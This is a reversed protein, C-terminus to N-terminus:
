ARQPTQAILWELLPDTDLAPALAGLRECLAYLDDFEYARLNVTGLLQQSRGWLQLTYHTITSGRVVRIEKLISLAGLDALAVAQASDHNSSVLEAESLRLTQDPGHGLPYFVKMCVLDLLLLAVSLTLLTRLSIASGLCASILLALAEVAIVFILAGRRERQWRRATLILPPTPQM